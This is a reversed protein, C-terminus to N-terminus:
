SYNCMCCTLLLFTVVNVLSCAANIPYTLAILLPTKEESVKDKLTFVIIRLLIEQELLYYMATTEFRFPCYAHM